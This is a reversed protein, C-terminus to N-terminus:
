KLASANSGGHVAVIFPAGKGADHLRQLRSLEALCPASWSQWFNLLVDRGRLRQLSFQEKDDAEFWADPALDGHSVTLRLPRFRPASTPVLYRDLAATL